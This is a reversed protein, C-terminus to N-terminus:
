LISRDLGTGQNINSDQIMECWSIQTAVNLSVFICEELVEVDIEGLKYNLEM